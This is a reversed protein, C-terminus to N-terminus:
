SETWGVDGGDEPVLEIWTRGPPVLLPRGAEDALEFPADDADKAWEGQILQGQTFLLASGTGELVTEPVFNGAPDTYGADRIAVRLVLVTDPTFEDGDAALERSRRWVEGDWEWSTTHSSSFSADLVAVPLGDPVEDDPGAWPLYPQPPAELGGAQTLLQELHVAVNYPASRGSVRSFGPAGEELVTVGADDMRRLVRQAGGSAVLAGGTPLVLGIDSTRVSRVPVVEDPLASHYMVALRTMGGEVLEQVVLDASSLGRQPQAPGTNDVKVVLAPQEGVGDPAPLGTLPWSPDPTLEPTPTDDPVPMPEPSPEAEISSADCGALVVTLLIVSALKRVPLTM